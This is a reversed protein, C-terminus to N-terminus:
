TPKRLNPYPSGRWRSPRHALPLRADLEQFRALAYAFNEAQSKNCAVSNPDPDWASFFHRRPPADPHSYCCLNYAIDRVRDLFAPTADDPLPWYIATWPDHEISAM